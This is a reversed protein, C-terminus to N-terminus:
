RRRMAFTWDAYRSKNELQENGPGFGGKKLPERTSRSRVGVVGGDERILDWDAQSTMPDPYIRRLHQVPTPFRHDELLAELSPPLTRAGGPPVNNYYSTIARRFQAGAFLLQEEKERQLQTTHSVMLSSAALTTVLIFVLMTLLIVGREGRTHPLACSRDTTRM